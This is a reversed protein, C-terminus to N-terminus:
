RDGRVPDAAAGLGRFGRRYGIRGREGGGDGHEDEAGERPEVQRVEAAPRDDRDPEGRHERRHRVGAPRPREAVAAQALDEHEDEEILVIIIVSRLVPKSWMGDGGPQTFLSLLTDILESLPEDPSSSGLFRTM